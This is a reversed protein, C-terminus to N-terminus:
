AGFIVNSVFRQKKKNISVFFASKKKKDSVFVM